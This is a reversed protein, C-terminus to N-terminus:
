GLFSGSPAVGSALLERLRASLDEVAGVDLPVAIRRCDDALTGLLDVDAQTAEVRAAIADATAAFVASSRDSRSLWERIM